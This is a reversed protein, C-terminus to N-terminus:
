VRSPGRGFALTNSVNSHQRRLDAARPVSRACTFTRWCHVPRGPRLPSGGLCAEVGTNSGCAQKLMKVSPQAGTRMLCIELQWVASAPATARQPSRWLQIPSLQLCAGFSFQVRLVFAACMSSAVASHLHLPVTNHVVRSCRRPARSLNFCLTGNMACGSFTLRARVGAHSQRGPWLVVVVVGTLTEFTRAVV